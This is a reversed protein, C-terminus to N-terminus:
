RLIHLQVNTSALVQYRENITAEADINFTATKGEEGKICIGVFPVDGNAGVFPVISGVTGMRQARTDHAKRDSDILKLVDFEHKSSVTLLFEDANFLNKGSEHITISRETTANMFEKVFIDVNRQTIANV